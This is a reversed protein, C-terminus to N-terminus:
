GTSRMFEIKVKLGSLPKGESTLKGDIRGNLKTNIVKFDRVMVGFNIETKGGKGCPGCRCDVIGIEYDQLAPRINVRRSRNLTDAYEAGVEFRFKGEKDTLTPLEKEVKPAIGDFLSLNADLKVDPIGKGTVIDTVAGRVVAKDTTRLLGFTFQVAEEGQVPVYVHSASVYGSKLLLIRIHSRPKELLVPVKTLSFGGKADSQATGSYGTAWRRNEEDLYYHTLTLSVGDLPNQPNRSDVVSGLVSIEGGKAEEAWVAGVESESGLGPGLFIWFFVGISVVLSSTCLFRVRM